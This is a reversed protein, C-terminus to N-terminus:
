GRFLVVWYNLAPFTGDFNHNDIMLSDTPQGQAAFRGVHEPLSGADPGAFPHAPGGARANFKILIDGENCIWQVKQNGFVRHKLAGKHAGEGTNGPDGIILAGSLDVSITLQYPM